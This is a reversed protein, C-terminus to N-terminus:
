RYTFCLLHICRILSCVVSSTVLRCNIRLRLLYVRAHSKMKRLPISVTLIVFQSFSIYPTPTWTSIMFVCILLVTPQFRKVLENTYGILITKSLTIDFNIREGGGGGGCVSISMRVYLVCVWAFNCM